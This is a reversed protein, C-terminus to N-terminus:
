REAIIQRRLATLDVGAVGALATIDNIRIDMSDESQILGKEGLRKLTRCVHVASLGTFDGLLQQTLPLHFQGNCQEDTASVRMCLEILAYAIRNEASGRGIRLLRESRRVMAAAVTIRELRRIKPDLTEVRTWTTQPLVAVRMDTLAEIQVASTQGDASSPDFLEYPMIFDVIQRSGDPMSKSVMLWGSLLCFVAASADGEHVLVEGSPLHCCHAALVRELPESAGHRPGREVPAGRDDLRVDSSEFEDM